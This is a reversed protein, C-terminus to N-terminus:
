WQKFRGPNQPPELMQSFPAMVLDLLNEGSTRTRATRRTCSCRPSYGDRHAATSDMAGFIPQTGCVKSSHTLRASISAPSRGPVVVASAWRRLSNSRSFLSNRRALSMRRVALAKKAWASSSRLSFDQVGVDILVPIGIPDLRDASHQPNGRRGVPAMRDPLAMRFPTAVPGLAIFPQNRLDFSDPIGVQPHIAGILDPLLHVPFGNGHRATRHFPEHTAQAQAACASALRHAGGNRIPRRRTRQIPDVALEGRISGILEPDRVEGIDRGPLAPQIHGKNDVHEGPTDHAPADAAGHGGVEHEVGQLLGKVGTLRAIRLVQNVVGVSARLVNGHAVGFAQAFGANIRRYAALAVAVIVGQGLGDVTQEFRFHDMPTAGPLGHFGHLQGRQLPHGPEVM